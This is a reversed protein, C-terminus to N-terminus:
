DGTKKFYDYLAEITRIGPNKTLGNSIRDLTDRSVKSERAITSRNFVPSHLKRIVYEMQSEMYSREIIIRM